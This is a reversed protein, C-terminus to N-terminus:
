KPIADDLPERAMPKFRCPVLDSILAAVAALAIAARSSSIWAMNPQSDPFM